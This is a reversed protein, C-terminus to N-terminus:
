KKEETLHLTMYVRRDPLDLYAGKYPPFTRARLIDVLTGARMAQDPDIRDIRDVDSVRHASGNRPQPMRRVQNAELSPWAERFLEISADELRRYLIEGTDTPLVAVERQAIIDGTDIDSDMFHLTVGAPTGDVISWVNPYAGRNHPLLAPHLNVAGHRAIDLVEPSLVYGFSVSILWEPQRERVWAVGGGTRLASGDLLDESRLNAAALIDEWESDRAGPHVVVGIPPDGRQVLWRLIDRGVRGNALYVYTM